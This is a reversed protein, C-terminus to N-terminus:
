APQHKKGIPFFDHKRTGFLFLVVMWRGSVGAHACEFVPSRAHDVAPPHKSGPQMCCTERNGEAARAHTLPHSTGAAM